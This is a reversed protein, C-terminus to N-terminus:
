RYGQHGNCYSPPLHFRGCPSGAYRCDLPRLSSCVNGCRRALEINLTMSTRTAHRSLAPCHLQLLTFCTHHSQGSRTLFIKTRICIVIAVLSSHHLAPLDAEWSSSLHGGGFTWCSLGHLGCFDKPFFFNSIYSGVRPEPDHLRMTCPGYRVNTLPGCYLTSVGRFVFTAIAHM